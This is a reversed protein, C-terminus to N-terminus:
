KMRFQTFVAGNAARPGYPAISTANQFVDIREVARTLLTGNELKCIRHGATIREDCRRALDPLARRAFPTRIEPLSHAAGLARLEM